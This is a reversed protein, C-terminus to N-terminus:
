ERANRCSTRPSPHLDKARNEEESPPPGRLSTPRQTPLPTPRSAYFVASSASVARRSATEVDRCDARPEDAPRERRSQGGRRDRLLRRSGGAARRLGSILIEAAARGAVDEVRLVKELEVVAGLRRRAATGVPRYPRHGGVGELQAAVVGEVQARIPLEYDPAIQRVEGFVRDIGEIGVAFEEIPEAVGVDLPRDDM